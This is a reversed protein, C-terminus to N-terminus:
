CRRERFVADRYCGCHGLDDPRATATATVADPQRAQGGSCVHPYKRPRGDRRDAQRRHGPPQFSVPGVQDDTVPETVRLSEGEPMRRLPPIFDAAFLAPM